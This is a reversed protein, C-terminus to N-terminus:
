ASNRFHEYGKKQNLAIVQGNTDLLMCGDQVTEGIEYLLGDNSNGMLLLQYDEGGSLVFEWVDVGFFNAVEKMEDTLPINEKYLKAGVSSAKCIRWLDLALGDSIDICASIEAEEPAPTLEPLCARRLLPEVLDWDLEIHVSEGDELRVPRKLSQLIYLGMAAEGTPGSLFIKQGVTATTRRLVRSSPTGLVTMSLITHEASSLDGGIVTLGYRKCGALIGKLLDDFTSLEMQPPLIMSLISWKPIGGMAYIDSVNRVVLRYGVQYATFLDWRFHVNEVMSDATLLMNSDRVDILACDDGIGISLDDTPIELTNKLREILYLEGLELLTM